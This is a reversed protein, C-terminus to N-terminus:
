GAESPSADWQIIECRGAVLPTASIPRWKEIPAADVRRILWFESVPEDALLPRRTLLLDFIWRVPGGGANLEASRTILTARLFQASGCADFGAFALAGSGDDDSAEPDAAELLQTLHAGFEDRSLVRCVPGEPEDCWVYGRLTPAPVGACQPYERAVAPERAIEAGCDISAEATLEILRDVDRGRLSNVADIVTPCLAARFAGEDIDEPIPCDDAALPVFSPAPTVTPAPAVTPSPTASTATQSPLDSPQPVGLGACGALLSALTVITLARRM